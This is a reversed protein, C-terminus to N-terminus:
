TPTLTSAVPETPCRRPTAALNTSAEGLARKLLQAGHVADSTEITPRPKMTKPVVCDIATAGSQPNTAAGDGERANRRDRPENAPRYLVRSCRVAGRANKGPLGYHVPTADQADDRNPKMACKAPPEADNVV